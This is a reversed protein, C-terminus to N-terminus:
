AAHHSAFKRAFEFIEWYRKGYKEPSKGFGEIASELDERTADPNSLMFNFVKSKIGVAGRVGKPKSPIPLENQKLYAKIAAVAQKEVVGKNEDALKQALEILQAYSDFATDGVIEAIQAKLEKPSTRLGLKEVAQKYLSGAKKFSIGNQIINILITNEDDGNQYGAAVIEEVLLSEPKTDQTQIQESMILAEDIIGQLQAKTKTHPLDIKNVKAIEQLQAVTLTAPQGAIYIFEGKGENAQVFEGKALAKFNQNFLIKM